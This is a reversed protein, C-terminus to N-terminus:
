RFVRRHCEMRFFLSFIYVFQLKKNRVFFLKLFNGGNVKRANIENFIQFWVFTNFCIAMLTENRGNTDGDEFNHPAKLDLFDEGMTLLCLLIVLELFSFPVSSGEIAKKAM